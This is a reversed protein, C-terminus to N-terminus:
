DAVGIKKENETITNLANNFDYWTSTLSGKIDNISSNIDNINKNTTTFSQKIDSVDKNVSTMNASVANSLSTLNVVTSKVNNMDSVTQNLQQTTITDVLNGKIDDIQLEKIQKSIIQVRRTNWSM